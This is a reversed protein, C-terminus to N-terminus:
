RAKRFLARDEESFGYTWIIWGFLGLTAPLGVALQMWGPLRHAALGIIMAALTDPM